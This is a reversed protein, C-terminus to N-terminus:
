HGFIKAFFGKPQSEEKKKEKMETMMQEMFKTNQEEREELKKDLETIKRDIEESAIALEAKASAFEKIIEDRINKTTEKVIIQMFQKVRESEMLRQIDEQGLLEATRNTAQKRFAGLDDESRLKFRGDEILLRALEKNTTRRGHEARLDRIFAFIELDNDYYIRENRSNRKTYHVGYEELQDAWNRLTGGAVDLKESADSSLVFDVEVPM